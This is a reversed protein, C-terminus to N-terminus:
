RKTALAGRTPLIVLISYLSCSVIARANSSPVLVKQALEKWLTSFDAGEAESKAMDAISRAVIRKDEETFVISRRKRSAATHTSLAFTPGKRPFKIQTSSAEALAHLREM